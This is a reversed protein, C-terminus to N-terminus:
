NKLVALREELASVVLQWEQIEKNLFLYTAGGSIVVGSIAALIIILIKNM